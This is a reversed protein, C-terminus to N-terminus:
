QTLLINQSYFQTNKQTLKFSIKSLWIKEMDDFDVIIGYEVPYNFLQQSTFYKAGWITAGV